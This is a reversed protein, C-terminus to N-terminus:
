QNYSALLNDYHGQAKLILICADRVAGQGGGHPTEWDAIAKVEAVANPVTIKFGAHRMPPIDVWDDGAYAIQEDALKLKEKLEIYKELKNECGLFVHKIGLQTTRKEVAPSNRGTIIAIEIGVQKLLKIGLGDQIYFGISFDQKDEHAYLSGDTMVGDVDLVLLKISKAKNLITDSITM